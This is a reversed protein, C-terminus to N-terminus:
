KAAEWNVLRTLQGMQMLTEGKHQAIQLVVGKCGQECEFHILLGDRRRSPNLSMDNDKESWNGRITLHTGEKSDEVDRNFVEIDGHHLCSEECVPCLLAAEGTGSDFGFTLKM